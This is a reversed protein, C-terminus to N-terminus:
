GAPGAVVREHIEKAIKLGDHGDYKEGILILAPSNEQLVRGLAQINKAVATQYNVARLVRDMLNLIPSDELALLILDPKSM